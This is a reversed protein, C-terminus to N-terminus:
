QRLLEVLRDIEFKTRRETTCLLIHNTLEPYHLGLDLGGLIGNELLRSNV